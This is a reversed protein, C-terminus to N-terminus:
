SRQCFVPESTSRRSSTWCPTNGIFGVPPRWYHRRERPGHLLPELPEVIEGREGADVIEGGGRVLASALHDDDALGRAVDLDRDDERPLPELVGPSRDREVHETLDDLADRVEDVEGRADESVARRGLELELELGLDVLKGEERKRRDRLAIPLSRARDVRAEVLADAKQVGRLRREPLPIADRVIERRPEARADALLAGFRRPCPQEAEVAAPLALLDAERARRLRAARPDTHEDAHREVREERDDGGRERVGPTVRDGGHEEVAAGGAAPVLGALRVDVQERHQLAVVDGREAAERRDDRLHAVLAHDDVDGGLRLEGCRRAHKRKVHELEAIMVPHEEADIRDRRDVDGVGIETSRGLLREAGDRPPHALRQREVAVFASLEGARHPLAEPLEDVPEAARKPADPLERRRGVLVGRELARRLSEPEVVRQEDREERKTPAVRRDPRGVDVRERLPEEEGGRFRSVADAREAGSPGGLPVDTFRPTAEHFREADGDLYLRMWAELTCLLWLKAGYFGRVTAAGRYGRLKRVFSVEFLGRRAIAADGLLDDALPALPGQLWPHVPVLMGSKKREIIAAPLSDRVAEKLVLKEVNGRLKLTPPTEWAVRAIRRDSLPQLPVMGSAGYTKEVKPLILGAGKFLLNVAQMRNLFSQTRPDEFVPSFAAEVPAGATARAFTDPTLLTPLEDFFRSYARAYARERAEDGYWSALLMPVNKPGGFCPDGGEGNLVRRFGNAAAARALMVNPVTLPDGIPDDLLYATEELEDRMVNADLTLVHHQAGVHDAVMKSYVLENPVDDGFAVSFCAPTRGLKAALAVVLSSDVGGSLFAAPPGLADTAALHADIVDDLEARLRTSWVTALSPDRSLADERDALDAPEEPRFFTERAIEDGAADFRVATGPPLARVGALLTAEGPVYSFSLYRALSLPDLARPVDGRAHIAKTESAFALGHPTKAVYLSRQGTADRALWLTGSKPDFAAIAFAGELAAIATTFGRARVREAVESWTPPAARESRLLVGTAAVALEGVRVVHAGALTGGRSEARLAIAVRRRLSAQMRGLAVRDDVASLAGFVAM